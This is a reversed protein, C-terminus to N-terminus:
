LARLDQPGTHLASGRAAGDQGAHGRRAARMTTSSVTDGLSGQGAAAWRGKKAVTGLAPTLHCLGPDQRTPPLQLAPLPRREM